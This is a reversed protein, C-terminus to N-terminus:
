VTGRASRRRHGSPRGPGLVCAGWGLVPWIPWFYDGGTLAWIAVLMASTLLYALPLDRRRGRGADEAGRPQPLDAVLSELEAFTSAGFAVELRGELEDASLRGEGAASRLREAIRERDTDAARLESM